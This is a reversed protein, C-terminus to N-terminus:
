GEGGGAEEGVTLKVADGVQRAPGEKGGKGANAQAGVQFIQDALAPTRQGYANETLDEDGDQRQSQDIPAVAM